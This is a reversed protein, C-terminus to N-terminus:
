ACAPRNEVAHCNPFPCHLKESVRRWWDREGPPVALPLTKRGQPQVLKGATVFLRFRLSGLACWYTADRRDLVVARDKLRVYERVAMPLVILAGLLFRLGTYLFPGINDLVVQQAVFTTGWILAAILLLANARLRTM